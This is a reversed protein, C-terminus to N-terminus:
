RAANRIWNRLVLSVLGIVLVIVLCYIMALASGYGYNANDFSTKSIYNTFAGSGTQEIITYIVCVFLVPTSMPFTIKWFEEWKTAGEVRAAEYLADPISQLAAMCLIIQVGSYWCVDMVKSVITELVTIIQEGWGLNAFLDNLVTISQFVTQGVESGGFLMGAINDSRFLIMVSGSMVIVPMFFISRFLTRGFFKGNLMVAILLAFMVTLPVNYLLGLLANSMLPLAEADVTFMRLYNQLGASTLVMGSNDTTVDNFSYIITQVLPVVFFLLIGLVWVSIFGRGYMANRATFSLKKM